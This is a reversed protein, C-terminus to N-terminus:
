FHSFNDITMLVIIIYRFVFIIQNNFITKNNDKSSVSDLKIFLPHIFNGKTNLTFLHKYACIIIDNNEVPVFFSKYTYKALPEYWILASDSEIRLLLLTQFDVDDSKVSCMNEKIEYKIDNEEFFDIYYDNLFYVPFEWIWHNDQFKKAIQSLNYHRCSNTGIEADEIENSM